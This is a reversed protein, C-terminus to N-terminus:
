AKVFEFAGNPLLYLILMSGGQVTPIHVSM